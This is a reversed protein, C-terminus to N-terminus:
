VVFGLRIMKIHDEDREEEQEEQEEGAIYLGHVDSVLQTNKWFEPKDIASWVRAISDSSHGSFHTVIATEPKSMRELAMARGVKKSFQDKPSCFSTGIFVVSTKGDPVVMTAVTAVGVKGNGKEKRVYFFKIPNRM